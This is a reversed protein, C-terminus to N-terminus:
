PYGIVRALQGLLKKQWRTPVGVQFIPLHNMLHQQGHGAVIEDSSASAQRQDPPLDVVCNFYYTRTRKFYSCTLVNNWKVKSKKSPKPHLGFWQLLYEKSFELLHMQEALQMYYTWDASKKALWWNPYTESWVLDYLNLVLTHYEM